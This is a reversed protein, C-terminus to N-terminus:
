IKFNYYLDKNRESTITTSKKSLLKTINEHIRKISQKENGISEAIRKDNATEIKSQKGEKGKKSLEEAFKLSKAINTKMRFSKSASQSLSDSEVKM